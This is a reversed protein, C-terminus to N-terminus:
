QQYVSPKQDTHLGIFVHENKKLNLLVMGILMTFVLLVGPVFHSAQEDSLPLMTQPFFNNVWNLKQNHDVSVCTYWHVCLHAGKVSGIHSAGPNHHPKYLM